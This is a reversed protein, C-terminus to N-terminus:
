RSYKKKKRELTAMFEALREKRLSDLPDDFGLDVLTRNKKTTFKNNFSNLKEDNIQEQEEKTIFSFHKKKM